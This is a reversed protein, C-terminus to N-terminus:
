QGLARMNFVETYMADFEELSTQKAVTALHPCWTKALSWRELFNYQPYQKHLARKFVVSVWGSGDKQAEELVREQPWNCDLLTTFIDLLLPLLDILLGQKPGAAMIASSKEQLMKM